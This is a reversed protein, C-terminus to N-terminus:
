DVIVERRNKLALCHFIVERIYNPVRQIQDLDDLVVFTNAFSVGFDLFTDDLVKDFHNSYHSLFDQNM